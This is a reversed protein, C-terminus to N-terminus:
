MLTCCQQQAAKERRIKAISAKDLNELGSAIKPVERRAGHEIAIKAVEQRAGHEVSPTAHKVYEAFEDFDIRGDVIKIDAELLLSASIAGEYELGVIQSFDEPTVYGSNNKDFKRFATHLLTEDVKDMQKSMLVAIFDSYRIEDDNDHALDQFISNVKSTKIGCDRQMAKKFEAFSITGNHDSDLALFYDRFTAREKECLSWALMTLCARRLKPISKWSSLADVIHHPDKLLLEERKCNQLIWPHVLASSATLRAKPNTNLLGTIFEKAQSSLSKWVGPKMSYKGHYISEVKHKQSGHFPMSGSLLIFSIVGASWMDCTSGSYDATLVEPALYSLTGCTSNMPGADKFFRSFGFDILKLNDSTESDYLFNELKLDRHVIGHSHLYNLALLIQRMANAASSEPFRKQAALRQYLEGGEICETVLYL